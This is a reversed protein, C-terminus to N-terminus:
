RSPRSEIPQCASSSDSSPSRGSIAEIVRGALNYGTGGYIHRAGPHLYAAGNAIVNDLYPNYVGGWLGHGSLGSTHDLLNRIRLVEPGETAFDPLYRGVPDDWDMLGQDVYRAFLALPGGASVRLLHWVHM